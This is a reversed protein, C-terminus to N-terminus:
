TADSYWPKHLRALWFQLSSPHESCSTRYLPNNDPRFALFLSHAKISELLSIIIEWPYIDQGAKTGSRAYVCQARPKRTLYCLCCHSLGGMTTKLGLSRGILLRPNKTVCMTTQGKNLICWYWLMFSCVTCWSNLPSSFLTGKMSICEVIRSLLGDRSAFWPAHVM